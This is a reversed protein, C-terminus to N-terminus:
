AKAKKRQKWKKKPVDIDVKAIHNSFENKMRSAYDRPLDDFTWANRNGTQAIYEKRFAGFNEKLWKVFEEPKDRLQILIKRFASKSGTMIGNALWLYFEEDKIRSTSMPHIHTLNSNWSSFLMFFPKVCTM